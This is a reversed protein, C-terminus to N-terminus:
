GHLVYDSVGGSPDKSQQLSPSLGLGGAMAGSVSQGFIQFSVLGKITHYASDMHCTTTTTAASVVWGSLISHAVMEGDEMVMVGMPGFSVRMRSLLSQSILLPIGDM